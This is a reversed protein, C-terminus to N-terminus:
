YCSAETNKKHSKSARSRRPVPYAFGQRLGSSAYARPGLRPTALVTHSVVNKREPGTTSGSSGLQIFDYLHKALNTPGPCDAIPAANRYLHFVHSRKMEALDNHVVLDATALARVKALIKEPGAGSTLKFAILLPAPRGSEAAYTKLRDIIKFNRKLTVRMEAPASDLKATQGPLFRKGGAEILSPSYDSVAALHIVADFPEAALAQRLAGDLDNFSSFGTLRVNKGSPKVAGAACLCLVQCGRRSFAEALARGTNGTSLNTIFRAADLPERTGGSTILVKM